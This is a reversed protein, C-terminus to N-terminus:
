SILNDFTKGAHINARTFHSSEFTQSAQKLESKLKETTMTKGNVIVNKPAMFSPPGAPNANNSNSPSSAPAAVAHSDIVAVSSSAKGAEQFFFLLKFVQIKQFHQIDSFSSTAYQLFDITRSESCLSCRREPTRRLLERFQCSVAITSGSLFWGSLVLFM